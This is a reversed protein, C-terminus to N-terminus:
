AGNAVVEVLLELLERPKNNAVMHTTAIERYEWASSDKAKNAAQWL